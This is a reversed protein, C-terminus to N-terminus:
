KKGCTKKKHRDLADKRVFTAYCNPCPLKKVQHVTQVHRQLDSARTFTGCCGKWTCIHNSGKVARHRRPANSKASRASVQIAAESEAASESDSPDDSDDDDTTPKTRQTAIRRRKSSERETVDENKLGLLTSKAPPRSSSPGPVDEEESRPRKSPGSM